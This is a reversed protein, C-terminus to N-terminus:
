PRDAGRRPRSPRAATRPRPDPLFLIGALGGSPARLWRRVQVNRAPLAADFTAGHEAVRRRPTSAEPLVLLRSVSRVEWGRRHAIDPALRVKRDLTALMGGMDPIVTKVEIVLLAGTAPHLALIDISGREGFVNFSVEPEVIWGDGQLLTIVREVLAAHRRDRLRDLGEGHWLVRVALYGDLAAVVRALTGALVADGHGGEIRYVAWASVGAADALRSQTWGREVRLLRIDSGIRRPDMRGLTVVPAEGASM